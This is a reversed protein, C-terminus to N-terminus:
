RGRARGRPPNRWLPDDLHIAAPNVATAAPAAQDDGASDNRTDYRLPSNGGPPLERATGEIYPADNAEIQLAATSVLRRLEDTTLSMVPSTEIAGGDPGSVEARMPVKGEIRDTLFVIFALDGKLANEWIVEALETYRDKTTGEIFAAELLAQRVPKLRPRGGPNLCPDGKQRPRLGNLQVRRKDPDLSLGTM